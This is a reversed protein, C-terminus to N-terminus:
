GDEHFTFIKKAAIRAGVPDERDLWEEFAPGQKPLYHNLMAQRLESHDPDSVDFLEGRGHV